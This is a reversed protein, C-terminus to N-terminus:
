ESKSTNIADHLSKLNDVEEKSLKPAPFKIGKQQRFEENLDVVKGAYVVSPDLVLCPEETGCFSSVAGKIWSQLDTGGNADLVLQEMDLIAYKYQDKSPTKDKDYFLFGTAAVQALVLASLLLTLTNKNTLM